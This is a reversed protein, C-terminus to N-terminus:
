AQSVTVYIHCARKNIPHAKGRDKPIWRKTGLRNGADDVRAESVFLSEVDAQQEDADAVACKLVKNVMTSARKNTFKLIDLADQVGRDVILQTVLRVKRASMPAFKYFCQWDSLDNIEVSLASALQRVDNKRPAPKMLGKQWNKLAGVAQKKNFGGRILQGALENVSANRRKVVAKLKKASLM